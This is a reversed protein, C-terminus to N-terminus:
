YLVQLSTIRKRGYGFRERDNANYSVPRWQAPTKCEIILTMPQDFLLYRFIDLKCMNKRFYFTSSFKNRIPACTAVSYQLPLPEINLPQKSLQLINKDGGRLPSKSSASNSRRPTSLSSQRPTSSPTLNSTSTGTNRNHVSGRFGNASGSDRRGSKRSLQNIKDGKSSNNDNGVRNVVDDGSLGLMGESSIGKESKITSASNSRTRSLNVSKENNEENNKENNEENNEFLDNDVINTHDILSSRRSDTNDFENRAHDLMSKSEHLLIQPSPAPGGGALLVVDSLHLRKMKPVNNDIVKLPSSQDNVGVENDNTLNSSIKMIEQNDNQVVENTITKNVLNGKEKTFTDSTTPPPSNPPLFVDNGLKKLLEDYVLAIREMSSLGHFTESVISIRIHSNILKTTDM